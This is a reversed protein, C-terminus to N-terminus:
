SSRAPRQIPIANIRRRAPAELLRYSLACLAILATLFVLLFVGPRSRLAEFSKMWGLLPLHLLYVSYSIDGFFRGVRGGFASGALPSLLSTALLATMAALHIPSKWLGPYDVGLLTLAVQPMCLVGAFLAGLFAVNRFADRGTPVRPIASSLVMGILFFPLHHPLTQFKTIGTSALLAGGIALLIAASWATGVRATVWWILPVLAYFHVEVPITWLISVGEWFLLHGLLNDRTVAFFTSRAGLADYMAASVLVVCLYLPFVRAVRKQFFGVVAEARLPQEVYLRAMLFGSILFFLMVGLQGARAGLLGGLFGTQNSFHSVVVVFAALGRLGDLAPLRQL